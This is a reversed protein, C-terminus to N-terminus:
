RAALYGNLHSLSHLYVLVAVSALLLVVLTGYAVSLRMIASRSSLTTMTRAQNVFVLVALALLVKVWLTVMYATGFPVLSMATLDFAGPARIPGDFYGTYVGSITIVLLVGFGVPLAARAISAWLANGRAQPKFVAALLLVGAMAVYGMGAISHLTRVGINLVDRGDFQLVLRAQQTTSQPSTQSGPGSGSPVVKELLVTEGQGPFDTRLTIDWTGFRAYHVEAVYSGPSGSLESFIVSETPSSGDEERVASFVLRAGVVPENDTAYRVDARYLRTLPNDTAATWSDLTM